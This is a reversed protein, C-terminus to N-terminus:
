NTKQYIHLLDNLVKKPYFDKVIKYSEEGHINIQNKNNIYYKIAQGIMYLDGPKVVIGNKKHKLVRAIGGVHTSILPMSYSMAELLTIPLGENYSPLIMIHSELLLKNKLENKTWGYFTVINELKNDSIFKKLKETEGDGGIALTIKNNYFEKNKAIIYLIDFIGKREGIRGLFLLQLKEHSNKSFPKQYRVINNLVFINKQNFNDLFYTQWETSLAIISDSNNIFYDIKSKIISSANNYFIQYESGHIHYIVKKNIIKSIKFLVYKRYFSGKSSGHIHIIEISPNFILYIIFHIIVFPFFLFNILKNSFYISAFFNFDDINNEYTKLVSAIGGKRTYIPAIFLIKQFLKTDM